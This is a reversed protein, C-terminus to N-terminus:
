VVSVSWDSQQIETLWAISINETTNYPFTPQFANVQGAVRSGGYLNKLIETVM